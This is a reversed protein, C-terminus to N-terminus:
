AKRYKALAAELSAEQIRAARLENDIAVRDMIDFDNRIRVLNLIREKTNKLVEEFQKVNEKTLTPVTKPQSISGSYSFVAPEIPEKPSPRAVGNSNAEVKPNPQISAKAPTKVPSSIEGVPASPSRAERARKEEREKTVRDRRLHALATRYKDQNIKTVSFQQTGKITHMFAAPTTYKENLDLIEHKKAWERLMGTTLKTSKSRELLVAAQATKLISTQLESCVSINKKSGDANLFEYGSIIKNGKSDTYLKGRQSLSNILRKESGVSARKRCFIGQFFRRFGYGGEKGGIKKNFSMSFDKAVEKIKAALKKAEDTDQKAKIVSIGAKGSNVYTQFEEPTFERVRIGHADAEFITLKEKTVGIVTAIHTIDDEKRYDKEGPLIAEGARVFWNGKDIAIFDGEAIGLKSWFTSDVKTATAITKPSSITPNKPSHATVLPTSSSQVTGHINGPIGYAM